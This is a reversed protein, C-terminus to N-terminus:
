LFYLITNSDRTTAETARITPSLLPFPKSHIASEVDVGVHTCVIYPSSHLFVILLFTASLSLTKGEPFSCHMKRLYIFTLPITSM